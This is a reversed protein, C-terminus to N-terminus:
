SISFVGFQRNALHSFYVRRTIFILLPIQSLQDGVHDALYALRITDYMPWYHLFDM